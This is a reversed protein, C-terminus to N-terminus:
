PSILLTQSFPINPLEKKLLKLFNEKAHINEQVKKDLGGQHLVSENLNSNQVRCYQLLFQWLNSQANQSISIRFVM